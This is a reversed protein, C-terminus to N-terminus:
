LQPQALMDWLLLLQQVLSAPKKDYSLMFAYESLCLWFVANVFTMSIIFTVFVAPKSLM